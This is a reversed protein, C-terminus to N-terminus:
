NVIAESPVWQRRSLCLTGALEDIRSVTANLIRASRNTVEAHRFRGHAVRVANVWVLNTVESFSSAAVHAVCCGGDRIVVVDDQIVIARRNGLKPRTRRTRGVVNRHHNLLHIAVWLGDSVTESWSTNETWVRNLQANGVM